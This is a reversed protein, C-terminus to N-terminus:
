MCNVINEISQQMEATDAIGIAMHSVVRNGRSDYTVFARNEGMFHIIGTGNQNDITVVVDGTPDVVLVGNILKAQIVRKM